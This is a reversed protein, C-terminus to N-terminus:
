NNILLETQKKYVEVGENKYILKFHEDKQLQVYVPVLVDKGPYDYIEKLRILVYDAKVYNTGFDYYYRRNTLYPAFQGVASVKIEDRALIQQWLRIDALEKTAPGWLSNENRISYPLPSDIYSAIAICVFLVVPIYRTIRIHKLRVVADILAIFVWPTILASYHFYLNKQEPSSSLLNLLIEPLTVLSLPSLFSLFGIPGFLHTLYDITQNSFIISFYQGILSGGNPYKAFYSLAFHDTGSRFSPIFVFTSWITYGFSVVALAILCLSKRDFFQTLPVSRMYEKRKHWWAIACELLLWSGLTFGVHEKTLMSLVFLIGFWAWRRSIWAYYMWLLLTTALVVAHFEYLASRQLPPYMLYALPICVLYIGRLLTSLGKKKAIMYLAYAGAALSITQVILLMEPGSYIFYLPALLALLMDNHIAMRKIQLGSGHPDTLELLRSFDTTQLAKYTNFVTQHMIGLDFYSAWLQHLRAISLYIFVGIFCFICVLLITRPQISRKILKKM